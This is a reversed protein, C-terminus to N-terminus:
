RTCRPSTRAPQHGDAELPVRDRGAAAGGRRPQGPVPHDRRVGRAGGPQGLEPGVAVRQLDDLGLGRAGRGLHLQRARLGPVGGAAVARLRGAPRPRPLRPVLGPVGRRRGARAGGLRARPRRPQAGPGHGPQDRPRAAHDRARPPGRRQRPRQAGLPLGARRLRRRQRRDAAPAAADPPPLHRRPGRPPRAAQGRRGPRRRVPRRLLRLRVGRAEAALRAHAAPAPRPPAPGGAPRRVGRGRQPGAHAAARRAVEPDPHLETVAAELDPWYRDLRLGFEQRRDPSLGTPGVVADLGLAGELQAAAAAHVERPASM